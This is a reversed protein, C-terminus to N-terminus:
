IVRERQIDGRKFLFINNTENKPTNMAQVNLTLECLSHRIINPKSGSMRNKNLLLQSRWIERSILM